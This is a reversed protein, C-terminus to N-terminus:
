RQIMRILIGAGAVILCIGFIVGVATMVDAKLGDFDSAQVLPVWEPATQALVLGPAAVIGAVITSIRKRM